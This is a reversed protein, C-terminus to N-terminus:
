MKTAEIATPIISNTTAIDLSRSSKSSKSYITWLEMAVGEYNINFYLTMQNGSFSVKAWWGEDYWPLLINNGDISYTMGNVKSGNFSLVDDYFDSYGSYNKLDDLDLEITQGFSKIKMKEFTWTGQLKEVLSNGAPDEGGPEDDDDSGCSNLSVSFLCLM